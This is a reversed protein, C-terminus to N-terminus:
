QQNLIQRFTLNIRQGTVKPEKPVQHEWVQQTIGRMVVVDGSHLLLSHKDSHDSKKRFSFKRTVGLSV